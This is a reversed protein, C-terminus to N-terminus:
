SRIRFWHQMSQTQRRKPLCSQNEACPSIHTWNKGHFVNEPLLLRNGKRWRTFFCNCFFFFTPKRACFCFSLIQVDFCSNQKGKKELCSQPLFSKSQTGFVTLNRCTELVPSFFCKKTTNTTKGEFMFPVQHNPELEDWTQEETTLLKLCACTTNVAWFFFSKIRCMWFVSVFLAFFLFFCNSVFQLDAPFFFFFPWTAKLIIKQNKSKDFFFLSPDWIKREGLRFISFKTNKIFVKKIVKTTTHFSHVM